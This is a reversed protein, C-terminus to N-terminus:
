NTLDLMLPIDKEDIGQKILIEKDKNFMELFAERSDSESAAKGYFEAAKEINGLCWAVHGANLHDTALPGSALLKEYYKMAQKEKGCLFSCWGIARWAKTCNDEMFDLKFFYQLAEDYKEQEALCSGAYFLVNHNEPQISEAKRYYELASTFDKMQRYCTALHRITWVHDPKLIDAKRYTEVAEKYRKEKQLCYGAKQFIDADAHNQNILDQYIDLAEAYHQKRFHFDAVSILIEPKCLIEKLAPIRHLAIEDKFIDHFEFRRQSLKFFRYIDHIYQNSNVEPRQAYQRLGSSKSEDMLENLDQSTMQSLMMDRQAQPIHAMTFCLSYKDSNCFFGSQLVLSLVANDGTPDFGFDKILSSHQMDFPYFWNHPEKFFPYSKLQAFTSMYVDAGELQLENMERIKDGLGSQEFAKGWDPNLDNEDATNDEFGFKMNRMINVNKMMEPIIEERMKKDIKETEQSRLIQIYIRGLQKGLNGDENSLSLRATLEPYYTLRASHVHLVIAIEVLARQSVRNDAHTSADLLWAFKRADFCEMLSLMIASTFLCLDNIPLLDSELMVKAQQEDEATWSSNSWTTLFLIQVTEEHRKLVADLGQNNPMLQCVAMDDPFSELVKRLTSIDYKQPLKERNARLSHYYHGSIGDLLSLRAQDAIEWTAALMRDYLKQREPDNVGQRMYQLMYQYSTQIQELRNRLSWDNSNWLFAELQSQAEKLRKQELLAIIHRHQEQIAQENM